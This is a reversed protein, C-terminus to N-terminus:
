RSMWCGDRRWRNDFEWKSDKCIIFFNYLSQYWLLVKLVHSNVKNLLGRPPRTVKSLPKKEMDPITFVNEISDCFSKYDIQNTGPKRFYEALQTIDENALKATKVFGNSLGSIFQRETVLGSRLSDSDKFFDHVRIGYKYSSISIKDIIEQCSLGTNEM